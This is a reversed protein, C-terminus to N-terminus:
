SRRSRCEKGVRREESRTAACGVLINALLVYIRDPTTASTRARELAQQVYAVDTASEEGYHPDVYTRYVPLHVLMRAVAEYCAPEDIDRVSIHHQCLAWFRRSM